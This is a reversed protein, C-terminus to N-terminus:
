KNFGKFRSNREISCGKINVDIFEMFVAVDVADPQLTTPLYREKLHLSLNVNPINYQGGYINGAHHRCDDDVGNWPLTLDIAFIDEQDIYINGEEAIGKVVESRPHGYEKKWKLNLQVGPLKSIMFHLRYNWSGRLANNLRYAGPPVVIGADKCPTSSNWEYLEETPTMIPTITFQSLYMINSLDSQTFRQIISEDPTVSDGHNVITQAPEVTESALSIQPSNFSM